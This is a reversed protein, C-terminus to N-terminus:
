QDGALSCVDTATETIPTRADWLVATSRTEMRLVTLPRREEAHACLLAFGRPVNDFPWPIPQLPEGLRTTFRDWHIPIVRSTRPGLTARFYATAKPESMKGVGALGLFVIEAGLTSLNRTGASPHVLIRRGQHEILFSLNEHDKYAGFWAPESLDRELPQDLLWRLPAPSPGHEVKYAWVRFAGFSLTDRESPVCLRDANIGQSRVLRRVAATGVVVTEPRSRVIRAVDMAHDHHGHAVLVARLPLENAGLGQDIAEDDSVLVSTLLTGLRPRSFFGDVLIRDHGDSFLLTSTGFYTVTLPQPAARSENARAAAIRCSEVPPTQADASAVLAGSAVVGGFLLVAVARWVM